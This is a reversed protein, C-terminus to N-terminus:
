SCMFRGFAKLQVEDRHGHQYKADLCLRVPRQKQVVTARMSLVVQRPVKEAMGGGLQWSRSSSSPVDTTQVPM